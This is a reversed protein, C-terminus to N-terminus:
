KTFSDCASTISNILASLYSEGTSTSTDSFMENSNFACSIRVVISSWSTIALLVIFSNGAEM